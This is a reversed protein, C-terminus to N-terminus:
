GLASKLSSANYRNGSPPITSNVCVVLSTFPMTMGPPAFTESHLAYRGDRRLDRLKPGPVIFGYLGGNSLLPCIPHVRPGSDPRSTALFALGIGQGYLMEQGFEALDPREEAFAAWNLMQWGESARVIGGSSERGSLRTLGRARLGGRDCLCRDHVTQLVGDGAHEWVDARSSPLCDALTRVGGARKTRRARRAASCAALTCQRGEGM